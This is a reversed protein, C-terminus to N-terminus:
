AMQKLTVRYIDADLDFNDRIDGQKQYFRAKQEAENLEYVRYVYYNDANDSSFQQENKSLFFPAISASVTTKVEIYMVNGSETYSRIDYGVHDGEVVSVHVVQNALNILGLNILKQKEYSLVLKEGALGIEKLREESIRLRHNSTANKQEETILSGTEPTNDLAWANAPSVDSISARGYQYACIVCKHRGSGAQSEELKKLISSSAAHGHECEIFGGLDAVRIAMDQRGLEYACVACKHRGIGVKLTM